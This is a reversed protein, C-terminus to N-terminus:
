GGIDAGGQGAVAHEEKAILCNRRVLVNGEAAVETRQFFVHDALKKQRAVRFDEHDGVHLLVASMDACITPGFQEVAIHGVLFLRAKPRQEIASLAGGLTALRFEDIHERSVFGQRVVAATPQLALGCDVVVHVVVLGVQGVAVWERRLLFCFQHRRVM